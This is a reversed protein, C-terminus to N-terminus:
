VFRWAEYDDDIAPAPRGLRWLAVALAAFLLSLIAVFRM